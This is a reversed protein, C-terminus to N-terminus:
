NLKETFWYIAGLTLLVIQIFFFFYFYFFLIIKKIKDDRIKNKVFKFIENKRAFNNTKGLLKHKKLTKEFDENIISGEEIEFLEKKDFYPQDIIKNFFIARIIGFSLFLLTLISITSLLFSNKSINSLAISFLMAIILIFEELFNETKFTEFLAIDEIKFDMDKNKRLYLIKYKLNRIIVVCAIFVVFSIWAFFNNLGMM